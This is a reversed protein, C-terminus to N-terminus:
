TSRGAAGNQREIFMESDSGCSSRSSVCDDDIENEEEAEAKDIAEKELNARARKNSKRGATHMTPNAKAPRLSAMDDPLDDPLNECRDAHARREMVTVAGPRQESLHQKPKIGRRQWIVNAREIIKAPPISSPFIKDHHYDFVLPISLEECIPLLDEANYCMEDNELVLRNRINDPLNKISQKLRELTALKDGYVGGGHIIMVSDQDLGMLDLMQAHYALDRIAADVVAPKPSGLQTFQGPHTTLRHGYKKALDGAKALEPACFELSYGHVGHSAFPFMESSVRFFRIHNDENWQILTLLDQVNKRGLDKVWELRGRFSTEKRQVDPIVYVPSPKRERIRKAKSQGVRSPLEDDDNATSVSMQEKPAQLNRKKSGTYTKPALVGSSQDQSAEQVSRKRKQLISSTTERDVPKEADIPTDTAVNNSVSLLRSSRRLVRCSTMDNM